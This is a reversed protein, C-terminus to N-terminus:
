VRRVVAANAALVITTLRHRFARSIALADPACLKNSTVRPPKFGARFLAELTARARPAARIKTRGASKGNTQRSSRWAKIQRAPRAPAAIAGSWSRPPVFARHMGAPCENRKRNPTPLKKLCWRSASSTPKSMPTTQRGDSAKSTSQGLSKEWSLANSSRLRPVWKVAPKCFM